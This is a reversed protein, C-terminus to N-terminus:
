NSDYLVMKGINTVVIDYLVMKGINTVVIYIM